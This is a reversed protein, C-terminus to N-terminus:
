TLNQPLVSLNQVFICWPLNLSRRAYTYVQYVLMADQKMKYLHPVSVTFLYQESDLAGGRHLLHHIGEAVTHPSLITGVPKEKVPIANLIIVSGLTQFHLLHIRDVGQNSLSTSISFESVIAFIYAYPVACITM